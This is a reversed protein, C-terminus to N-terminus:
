CYLVNGLAREERDQPWSLPGSFPSCFEPMLLGPGGTRIWSESTSSSPRVAPQTSWPPLPFHPLGGLPWRGPRRPCRPGLLPPPAPPQSAAGLAERVVGGPQSGLRIQAPPLTTTCQPRSSQLWPLSCGSQTPLHCNRRKFLSLSLSLFHPRFEM